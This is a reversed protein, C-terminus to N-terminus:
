RHRHKKIFEFVPRIFTAIRTTPDNVLIESLRMWKIASVEKMQELNRLDLRPEFTERTYAIFYTNKYEVGDDIYSYTNTREAFLKYQSKHVGTEENFERVACSLDSEEGNRRGKPIEWILQSSTSRAILSRLRVGNDYCFSRDYVGKAHRYSSDHRMGWIVYWIQSFNLSVINLKEDMTMGNFLQILSESDANNYKSSVFVCYSYTYRKRILLVEPCEDVYRCCAIGVSEKLKHRRPAGRISSSAM